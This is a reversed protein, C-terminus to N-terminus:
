HRQAEGPPAPHIGQEALLLAARRSRTALWREYLRVLSAPRSVRTLDSVEALLDAFEAFRDELEGFVKPGFRPSEERALRGYARCGMATYYAHHAPEGRLSDAFFGSLFLASDGLLRLLRSREYGVSELARVYILALPM